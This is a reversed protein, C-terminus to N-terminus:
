KSELFRAILLNGHESLFSEPHFQIGYIPLTQHAFAMICDDDTWAHVDLNAPLHGVVLSHYRAMRLPSELGEFLGKSFHRVPWAEGHKPRPARKIEGGFAAAIAQHGLCIGLTPIQRRIADDVWAILQGSTAPTGPGPGLVLHTFGDLSPPSKHDFVAVVAGFSRLMDVINYSFSDHNDVFAVTATEFRKNIKAGSWSAGKKPGPITASPRLTSLSLISKAKADIESSESKPASDIVIGAGASYTSQKKTLYASRILINFVVGYGASVYGLSGTYPGRPAPELDRIFTM